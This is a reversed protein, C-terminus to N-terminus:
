YLSWETIGSTISGAQVTHNVNKGTTDLLGSKPLSGSDTLTVAAEGSQGSKISFTIVAVEGNQATFASFDAGGDVLINVRGSEPVHLEVTHNASAIAGKEIVTPAELKSDDYDLRLYVMTSDTEADAISVPVQVATGSLGSVSGITIKADPFIYLSSFLFGVLLWIRNM